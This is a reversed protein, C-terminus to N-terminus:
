TGPGFFGAGFIFQMAFRDATLAVLFNDIREFFRVAEIFVLHKDLAGAGGHVIWIRAFDNGPDAKEVFIIGGGTAFDDILLDKGGFM